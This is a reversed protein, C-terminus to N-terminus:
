RKGRDKVFREIVEDLDDGKAPWLICAAVIVIASVLGIIDTWNM